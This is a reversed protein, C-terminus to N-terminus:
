AFPRHVGPRGDRPRLRDVRSDLVTKGGLAALTLSELERAHFEPTKVGPTVVGDGLDISHWWFPLAEVERFLERGKETKPMGM